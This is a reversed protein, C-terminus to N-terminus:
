VKISTHKRPKPALPKLSLLYRNHLPLHQLCQAPTLLATLLRSKRLARSGAVRQRLPQQRSLLHRNHVPLHQLCQVPTLLAPLLRSKALARSGAVRRRLPQQRSLLYRNHVPLHQLCQVPTLLAPLLRSKPLARSGAVRQRLPQQRTAQATKLAAEAEMMLKQATRKHKHRRRGTQPNPPQQATPTVPARETQLRPAVHLRNPTHRQQCSCGSRLL